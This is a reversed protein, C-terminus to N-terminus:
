ADLGDIAPSMRAQDMEAFLAALGGEDALAIAEDIDRQTWGPIMRYLMKPPVGLQSLKLLADATQALSRSEVDQWQVQSELDAAATEDGLFASAARMAQEYGEGLV